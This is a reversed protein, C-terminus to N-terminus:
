PKTRVEIQLRGASRRAKFYLAGNTRNWIDIIECTNESSVGTVDRREVKTSAKTSVM